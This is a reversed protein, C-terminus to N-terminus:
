IGQITVTSSSSSTAARQARGRIKVLRHRVAVGTRGPMAGTTTSGTRSTASIATDAQAIVKYSRGDLTFRNIESEGLLTALLQGIDQMSVGMQAAKERDIDIVLEPKDFDLDIHRLRFRTAPRWRPKSGSPWEAPDRLLCARQHHVSRCAAGVGPLSPRNFAFAKIGPIENMKAQLEPLVDM